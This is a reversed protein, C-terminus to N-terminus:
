LSLQVCDMDEAYRLPFDVRQVHASTPGIRGDDKRHERCQFTDCVIDHYADRSTGPCTM